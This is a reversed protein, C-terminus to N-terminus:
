KGNKRNRQLLYNEIDIELCYGDAQPYKKFFVGITGEMSSFGLAILLNKFDM